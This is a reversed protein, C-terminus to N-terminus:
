GKKDLLEDLNGLAATFGSEFGMEMIKKLDEESAFSIEVTVKTGTEVSEFVNKWQMSPFDGSKNGDEDCFMDSAEFSNQPDIKKYEVKCWMKSNDPSVMAYLWQGGEEFRMSKTEAKYPKPAWWQDLLGSQTWANWVEEVPAKFHRTITVKKAQLDKTIQAQNDVTM